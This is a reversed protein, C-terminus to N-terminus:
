EKEVVNKINRLLDNYRTQHYISDEKYHNSLEMQGNLTKLCERVLQRLNAKNYKEDLLVEDLREYTLQRLQVPSDIINSM